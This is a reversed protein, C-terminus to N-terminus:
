EPCLPKIGYILIYGPLARLAYFALIYIGWVIIANLDSNM